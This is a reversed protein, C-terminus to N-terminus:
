RFSSVKWSTYLADILSISIHRISENSTRSRYLGGENCCGPESPCKELPVLGAVIQVVSFGKSKRDATLRQFGEWCLRDSLGMWWTDGLWFFPTGDAHEFHRGNESLKLPGRRCLASAGAYEDIVIRGHQNNLEINRTNSAVVRFDYIGAAYPAFRM